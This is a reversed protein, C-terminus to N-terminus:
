GRISAERYHLTKHVLKIQTCTNKTTTNINQMKLRFLGPYINWHADIDASGTQYKGLNIGENIQILWYITNWM